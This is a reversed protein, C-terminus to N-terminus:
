FTYGYKRLVNIFFVFICSFLIKKVWAPSSTRMAGHPLFAIRKVANGAPRTSSSFKVSSGWFAGASIACVSLYTSIVTPHKVNLIYWSPLTNKKRSPSFIKSSSGSYANSFPIRSYSLRCLPSQRARTVKQAVSFSCKKPSPWSWRRRQSKFPQENSRLFRM